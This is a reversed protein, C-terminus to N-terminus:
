SKKKGKVKDYGQKAFFLGIALSALGKLVQGLTSGNTSNSM